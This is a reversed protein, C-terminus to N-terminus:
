ASTRFDLWPNAMIKDLYKTLSTAEPIAICMARYFIDLVEDATVKGQVFGFSTILRGGPADVFDVWTVDQDEVIVIECLPPLPAFSIWSTSSSYFRSERNLWLALILRSADHM